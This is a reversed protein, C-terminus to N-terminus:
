SAATIPIDKERLHRPVNDVGFEYSGKSSLLSNISEVAPQDAGIHGLHRFNTPDGIMSRDIKVRGIDSQPSVCCNLLWFRPPFQRGGLLMRSFRSFRKKLTLKIKKESKKM